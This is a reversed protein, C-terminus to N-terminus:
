FIASLKADRQSYYINIYKEFQCEFNELKERIMFLINDKLQIIYALSNRSLEGLEKIISIYFAM